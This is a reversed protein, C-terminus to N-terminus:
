APPPRDDITIPPLHMATSGFDSTFHNNLCDYVTRNNYGLTSIKMDLNGEAFGHCYLLKGYTIGMGLSVTNALRFYGSQTVWYKELALDYQRM